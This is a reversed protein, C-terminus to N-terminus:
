RTAGAAKLLQAIHNTKAVRLATLGNNAQVNVDAQSALLAQVVEPHGQQAALFLATAGDNTQRNLNFGETVLANVTTIDGQYAATMLANRDTTCGPQIAVLTLGAIILM